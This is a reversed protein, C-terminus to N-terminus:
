QSPLRMAGQEDIRVKGWSQISNHSAINLTEIDASIDESPLYLLILGAKDGAVAGAGSVKAAGGKNEIATILQQTREPVVGIADLLQQNAKLVERPDAKDKLTAVLTHTVDSFDHWRTTEHGYHRRVYQVCEGTSTSPVGTHLWYWNDDLAIDLRQHQEGSIRNIGGYTVTVADIASGFGHQLRECFRVMEFLKETPLTKKLIEEYLVLTAAIASASSGMGAGVPITSESRLVGSEPALQKLLERSPLQQLFAMLAYMVLDNPHSLINQVPLDGRTFQEFRADLRHKLKSLMNIPYTVGSSIGSFLTNITRSNSVPSFAVTTYQQVAAAIADAGYVVAHEGSLIIKGPARAQYTTTDAVYTTVNTTM